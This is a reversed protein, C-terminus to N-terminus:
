RKNLKRRIIQSKKNGIYFGIVLMLLFYPHIIGFNIKLLILYYLMINNLMFLFTIVVKYLNNKGYIYKYNINYAFSFVLGYVFSALLSLLQTQLDMM